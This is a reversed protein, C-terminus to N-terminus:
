QLRKRRLSSLYAVIDDVEKDSLIGEYPPMTSKKNINYSTLDRKMLSRLRDKSDLVQVSFTDENLRQGSM